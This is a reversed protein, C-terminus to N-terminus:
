LETRRIDALLIGKTQNQNPKKLFFFKLFLAEWQHFGVSNWRGLWYSQVKFSVLYVKVKQALFPASILIYAANEERPLYQHLILFILQQCGVLHCVGTSFIWFSICHCKLLGNVWGTETKQQHQVGIQKKRRWCRWKAKLLTEQTLSLSRTGWGTNFPRPWGRHVNEFSQQLWQRWFLKVAQPHAPLLAWPNWFTEKSFGCGPGWTVCGARKWVGAGFFFCCQLSISSM